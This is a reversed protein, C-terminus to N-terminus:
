NDSSNERKEVGTMGGISVDWSGGEKIIQEYDYVDENFLSPFGKFFNDRGLHDYKSEAFNHFPLIDIGSVSEGLEKAFEVISRPYGLDWFNVDHIVPLRLRMKVSNQAMKRVNDLILKNSVGTWKQHKEDDLTKIDILVLDVYELVRQITEWKVFGSTDLATHIDKARAQKLLAITIDPHFLPEGGSITMGGGSSQYFLEDSIVEDMVEDITLLESARTIAEYKCAEVCKLCMTCKDRDIKPPKIEPKSQQNQEPMNPDPGSCCSVGLSSEVSGKQQIVPPTIADEPCAEACAGCRVCKDTNHFIEQGANINEPNHCWACRLPCGKLFVTTRIGPGDNISFRQIKTVLFKGNELFDSQQNPM